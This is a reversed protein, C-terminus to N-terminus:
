NTLLATMNQNRWVIASACEQFKGQCISDQVISTPEIPQFMNSLALPLKITWACLVSVWLVYM